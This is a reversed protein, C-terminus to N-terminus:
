PRRRRVALSSRPQSASWNSRPTQVARASPAEAAGTNWAAARLQCARPTIKGPPVAAPLDVSAPQSASCPHAYWESSSTATHASPGASHPSGRGRLRFPAERRRNAGRRSKLAGPAPMMTVGWPAM